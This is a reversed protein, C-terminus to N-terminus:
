GCAATVARIRKFPEIYKPNCAGHSFLFIGKM